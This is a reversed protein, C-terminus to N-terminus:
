RLDMARSRANLIHSGMAQMAAPPDRRRLVDIIGLHERMTPVLVAENLRTRSQKILRIKIANVRYAESIIANGLADIITAHFDWDIAEAQVVLDAPIPGDAAAAEYRRIMATHNEHLRDLSGDSVQLAFPAIAERELFLRFEFADQILHLDVHAVQMGRRRVTRILGETELRPILERIAGLPLGTMAVLERQSIFQGPKIDQALLHRTFREYARERLNPPARESPETDVIAGM